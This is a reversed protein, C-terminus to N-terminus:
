CMYKSQGEPGKKVFELLKKDGTNHCPNKTFTHPVKAQSHMLGYRRHICIHTHLHKHKSGAKLLPLMQWWSGSVNEKDGENEWSGECGGDERRLCTCSLSM